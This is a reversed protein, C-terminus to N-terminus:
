DHRTFGTTSPTDSARVYFEVLCDTSSYGYERAIKAKLEDLAKNHFEIVRGSEVDVLHDCSELASKSYFNQKSQLKRRNIIGADALLRLTCYTASMSIADNDQNAKFYIEDASLYRTAVELTDLIAQRIGTIRLGQQICKRELVTKGTKTITKASMRIPSKIFQMLKEMRKCRRDDAGNFCYTCAVSSQLKIFTDTNFCGAYAVRDM